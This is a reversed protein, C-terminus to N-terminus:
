DADLEGSAECAPCDYLTGPEHPYDAHPLGPGNCAWTSLMDLARRNESVDPSWRQNDLERQARYIADHLESVEVGGVIRHSLRSFVAGDGSPGHWWSAITAACEDSIEQGAGYNANIMAFAKDSTLLPGANETHCIGAFDRSRDITSM